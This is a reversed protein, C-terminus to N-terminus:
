EISTNAENHIISGQGADLMQPIVARNVLYAGRVNVDFITNWDDLSTEHLRGSPMVAANNVVVNIIGFAEQLQKVAETVQEPDRM